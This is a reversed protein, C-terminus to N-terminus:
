SSPKKMLLILYLCVGITIASDAVNFVPWIRFDLFDIVAHFRLRDIWNGAAGGLILALGWHALAPTKKFAGPTAPLHMRIGIWLLVCLSLTILGLLLSEHGRLLGFAIGTNRVLTFHFIGAVLPVTEVSALLTLALFKTFQDTLLVALTIGTFSVVPSTAEEGRTGSM